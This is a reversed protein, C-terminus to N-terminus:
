STKGPAAALLRLIEGPTSAAKVRRVWQPDSVHEALESLARLHSKHDVVGLVIALSVPDNHPHGFAVPNVLTVMSLCLRNVGNEPRAHLLVVGPAFVMYPGYERIVSKMAAVYRAEIAGEALLPAGAKDVVEEWDHANVKLRIHTRPVLDTLSLIRDDQAPHAAPAARNQGVGLAERIRALDGATLLPSVLLVSFGPLSVPITSLILDVEDPRPPQRGVEVASTVEVVEIDALEARLRSVLMWATAVGESCIIWLRRRLGLFPRLREMAAGLHMALYGIEEDPVAEGTQRSLVESCRAAIRYIQPYQEQIAALLPNRIPQHNRLRSLAVEVHYSL